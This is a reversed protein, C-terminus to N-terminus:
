QFLVLFRQGSGPVVAGRTRSASIEVIATDPAVQGAVRALTVSATGDASTTVTDAAQNGPFTVTPPTTAPDPSTLAFVVPRSSLPGPPSFSELRVVMAPSAVEGALVTLVSDGAIILTDAPAIVTFSIPDSILSGVSAQVRGLGPSVGTVEGTSSNVTLTPDAAAWTVTAAVSDGEANVPRASLALTEGVELTAPSPVTVELAVVGVENPDVGSCGLVVGLALAYGPLRV